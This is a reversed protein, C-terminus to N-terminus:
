SKAASDIPIQIETLYNKPNGKFIMGPGKLYVERTPSAITYGKDKAYRIAKEYAPGLQDYPGKHILCVCRVGPLERVSVGDVPKGADKLPMCAEFDADDQRYEDDYHLMMAPGAIFRGLARGIKSFGKSCDSYRGKMRVGAILLEPVDKEDVQYRTQNM